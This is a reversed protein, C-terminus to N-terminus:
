QEKEQRAAREGAPQIEGYLFRDVSIAAAQAPTHRREPGTPYFVVMAVGFFLKRAAIDAGGKKLVGGSINEALLDYLIVYESKLIEHYRLMREKVAESVSNNYLPVVEDVGDCSQIRCGNAAGLMDFSIIQWLTSNARYFTIMETFYALLKHELSAGGEVARRLRGVFAENKDHVLKYFLSEKNGFYRYVTGKGVDAVAIIDDLTTREYGCESFIKEAALLIRQDRPMRTEAQM